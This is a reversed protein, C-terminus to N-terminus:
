LTPELTSVYILCSLGLRKKKLNLSKLFFTNFGLSNHKTSPLLLRYFQERKVLFYSQFNINDMVYCLKIIPLNFAKLPHEFNEKM